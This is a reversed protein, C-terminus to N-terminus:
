AKTSGYPMGKSSLFEFRSRSDIFLILFTFFRSNGPGQCAVPGLNTLVARARTTVRSTTAEVGDGVSYYLYMCFTTM